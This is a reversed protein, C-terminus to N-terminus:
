GIDVEFSYRYVVANEVFLNICRPFSDAEFCSEEFVFELGKDFSYFRCWQELSRFWVITGLGSGEM